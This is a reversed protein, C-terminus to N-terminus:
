LAPTAFGGNSYLLQGRIWAGRESVLFRVLDAVTDTGGLHGAPTAAAGSARIEDDMWGTDIPGPNVANASIGRDALEVAAAIM